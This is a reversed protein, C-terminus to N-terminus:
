IGSYSPHFILLSLFTDSDSSTKRAVRCPLEAGLGGDSGFFCFCSRFDLSPLSFGAM